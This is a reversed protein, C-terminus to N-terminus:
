EKTTKFVAQITMDFDYSLGHLETGFISLPSEANIKIITKGGLSVPRVIGSINADLKGNKNRGFVRHNIGLPASSDSPITVWEMLTRDNGNLNEIIKGYKTLTFEISDVSTVEWATPDTYEKLTKNTTKDKYDWWFFTPLTRDVGTVPTITDKGSLRIWIHAKKLPSIDNEDWIASSCNQVIFIIQAKGDEIYLKYENPILDQVTNSDVPIFCVTEVCELDLVNIKESLKQDSDITNIGKKSNQSTCGGITLLLFFLSIWMIIPSSKTVTRKIKM